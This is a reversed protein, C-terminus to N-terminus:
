PTPIAVVTANSFPSEMNAASVSTVVFLYSGGAQVDWDTYSNAVIPTSNLKAWAENSAPTRYINYGVVASKSVEWNVTTSHTVIVGNGSLPLSVTPISTNSTLAVMGSAKGTNSPNFSVQLTVYQGPNLTVGQGVGSTAFGAGALSTQQLTLPGTGTNSFTVGYTLTAGVAVDGFDVSSNYMTLVPVPPPTFTGGGSGSGGGAGCGAAALVGGLLCMPLWRIHARRALKRKNM